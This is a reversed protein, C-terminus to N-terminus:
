KDHKSSLVAAIILYAIGIGIATEDAYPIFVYKYWHAFSQLISLIFGFSWSLAMFVLYVIAGVGVAQVFKNKLLKNMDM